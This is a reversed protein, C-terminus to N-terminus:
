PLRATTKLTGRAQQVRGDGGSRTHPTLPLTHVCGAKLSYVFALLQALYATIANHLEAAKM